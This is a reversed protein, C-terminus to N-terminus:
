EHTLGGKHEAIYIKLAISMLYLVYASFILLTFGLIAFCPILLFTIDALLEM